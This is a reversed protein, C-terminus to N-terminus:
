LFLRSLLDTFWVLIIVSLVYIWLLVTYLLLVIGVLILLLYIIIHKFASSTM